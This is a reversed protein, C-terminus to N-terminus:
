EGKYQINNSQDLYEFNGTRPNYQGVGQEIARRENDIKFLLVGTLFCTIGLVLILFIFRAKEPRSIM